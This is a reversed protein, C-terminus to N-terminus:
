ATHPQRFNSGHKKLKKASTRMAGDWIFGDVQWDPCWGGHSQNPPLLVLSRCMIVSMAVCRWRPPPFIFRPGNWPVVLKRSKGFDSKSWTFCLQKFDPASDSVNQGKSFGNRIQLHFGCKRGKMRSHLKDPDRSIRIYVCVVKKNYYWLLSKGSKPSDCCPIM